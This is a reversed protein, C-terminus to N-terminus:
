NQLRLNNNTHFLFTGGAVSKTGGFDLYSVLEDASATGGRHKYIVAARCTFTSVGWTVDSFTWEVRDDGTDVVLATAVIKGGATYGTGVTENTIDSRKTHTEKNPEYSSTVLMVYYTDTVKVNGNSLDAIFSDFIISGTM